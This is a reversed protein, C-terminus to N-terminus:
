NALEAAIAARDSDLRVLWQAASEEAIDKETVDHVNDM